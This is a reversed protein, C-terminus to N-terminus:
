GEAKDKGPREAFVQGVRKTAYGIFISTVGLPYAGIWYQFVAALQDALFLAVGSALWGVTFAITAVWSLRRTSNREFSTSM